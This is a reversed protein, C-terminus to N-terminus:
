TEKRAAVLADHLLAEARSVAGEPDALERHAERLVELLRRNESELAELREDALLALKQEPTLM